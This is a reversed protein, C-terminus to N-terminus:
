EELEDLHHLLSQIELKVACKQLAIQEEMILCAHMMKYVHPFYREIADKKEEWSSWRHIDGREVFFYEIMLLDERKKQIESPTM